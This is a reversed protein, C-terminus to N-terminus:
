RGGFVDLTSQGPLSQPREEEPIAKEGVEIERMLERFGDDGLINRTHRECEGWTEEPEGELQWPLFRPGLHDRVTATIGMPGDFEITGDDRVSYTISEPIMWGEGDNQSLFAELGMSKLDKFARLALVTHRLEPLKDKDVRWFGKPDFVRSRARIEDVPYACEKLIWAFDEYDLGYLEAVVADLISRLRLREFDTVAWLSKWQRQGLEAIRNRLCLWDPSFIINIISLRAVFATIRRFLKLVISDIRPLPTDEIVFYNLNIGGLRCRMTYDYTYSNLFATLFLSGLQREEGIKPVLIPVANGCPCNPIYSSIMSRANTGSGIAMFCVKSTQVASNWQNYKSSSMLYQPMIVKAHSPIDDWKASRGKGSIWRKASFDFLDIMRGEYLPLAVDSAQGIQEGRFILGNACNQPPIWRGYEDQCYGQDEWWPRPPFLKSDNTMHFETTYEIQWGDDGRHGLSVSDRYIREVIRLDRETQVELISRTNPSFHYVQDRPYRLVSPSPGEWEELERRMFATRIAETTGGKEVIVPCFKFSRHINFIANRNEFGFLWEWRCQELFLERLEMTGKDTYIGSPVLMGFRGGERLLTHAVELFLKYTNLDASGQHRFNHESDAYTRKGQREKRWKEHLALGAKGRQLSEKEGGEVPDGFPFAGNKVWNSMSKFGATYLIWDREIIEELEFLEKQRALGEQKGYTRYVPDYRTFFEKSNPKSIEWPPNGLIADFGGGERAFVDPFELEWHFFRFERRLEEVVEKQDGDLTRFDKSGPARDIRDGPWFWIACWADFRRKLDELDRNELIEKRYMEEREAIGDGFIPLAHLRDLTDKIRDHLHEAREFRTFITTDHEGRTIETVLEPKIRNTLAAKIAKTWEGKQYHVGKTHAADGGERKWALLPYDQFRDFWCGVLSNGAKLKHDLFEFPLERDMTEIWLALKGLEVALPNIDVGYICNEVVYRKLRAKVRVEFDPDNPHANLIEEPIAGESTRGYPITVVTRGEAREKICRHHELSNYLADTLYRLAGVLFSGSGMAPDVVKLALIEEPKRPIMAGTSPDRTYVLPELTRHATPVALQPKTYFTGTGKRTGSLRVLFMEGPTLVRSVLKNAARDRKQEYLAQDAGSGRPRRVLGAIEVAKKALDMARFYLQDAQSVTVEDEGAMEASEEEEDETAEPTGEGGEVEEDEADGKEKGLKTLLDKLEKETLGELYTLPLVPQQGINLFVMAGDRETVLRPHYDLLGEYMMGIYETRLNSFDVPGSVWTASRGRRARVKGIKLLRLVNLISRDSMQFREDEFAALARLVPDGSGRVGRHFLTGGYRPVPIDEFASGEHILRFLAMLRPWASYSEGLTEEGEERAAEELLSYMGEIGYSADYADMSKPLLDRSEAFLGIVIRMMIRISAQYLADFVEQESIRRGTVPDTAPDELLEPHTRAVNNISSHFSEVARRAQEGLVQSLEGQRSRSANVASLLPFKSHEDPSTAATGCLANFGALMGTGGEEEFWRSCEWEAWCDYDMGAHVLRFQLGNTIIGVPSATARLLSVFRSYELRGRGIGLKKSSTDIRLLFRPHDVSGRYLLVRDPRVRQGLPTDWRFREDVKNGKQWFDMHHGLFRELVADVWRYLAEKNREGGAGERRSEFTAFADRLRRYAEYDVPAPGRPLMEQLVAPSLVMGGHRLEAWWPNPDSSSVM